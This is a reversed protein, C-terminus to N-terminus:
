KKQRSKQLSFCFQQLIEEYNVIKKLNLPQLLRGEQLLNKKRQLLKGGTTIKKGPDNTRDVIQYVQYALFQKKELDFIVQLEGSAFNKQHYVDQIALSLMEIVEKETIKEGEALNKILQYTNNETM